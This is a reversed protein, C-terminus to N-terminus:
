SALTYDYGDDDTPVTWAQDIRDALDATDFATRIREALPHLAITDLGSETDAPIVPTHQAARDLDSGAPIPTM